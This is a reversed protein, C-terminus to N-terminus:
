PNCERNRAVAEHNLRYVAHVFKNLPAAVTEFWDACLAVLQRLLATGPGYAVVDGSEFLYDPRSHAIEAKLRDLDLIGTRHDPRFVPNHGYFIGYIYNSPIWLKRDGRYIERYVFDADDGFYSHITNKGGDYLSFAPGRDNIRQWADVGSVVVAVAALGFVVRRAGFSVLADNKTPASAANPWFGNAAVLLAATAVVHMGLRLEYAGLFFWALLSPIALGIFVGLGRSGRRFIVCICLLLVSAVGPSDILWKEAAYTLQEFWSRDQLSRAAVGANRWFGHGETLLWLLGCGWAIAVPILTAVRKRQQIADIAALIPFTLMLWILAPQKSLGAVVAAASALWLHISLESDRAREHQLYLAISIVLAPIMVIEALGKSLGKSLLHAAFLTFVILGASWLLSRSNVKANATGIAAVLSAALIAFGFRVPLQLDISGLLQYNWAILYSFVQPYPAVTYFLDYPEGLAHQIGWMNWSYVEDDVEFGSTGLKAAAPLAVCVSFLYVMRHVVPWHVPVKPCLRYLRYLRWAAIVAFVLTASLVTTETFLGWPKLLRALTTVILVSLIPVAYALRSDFAARPALALGPALYVGLILGTAYVLYM